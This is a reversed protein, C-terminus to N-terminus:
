ATACKKILLFGVSSLTTCLLPTSVTDPIKFCTMANAASALVPASNTVHLSPVTHRLVNYSMPCGGGGFDMVINLVVAAPM